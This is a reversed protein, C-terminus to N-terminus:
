RIVEKKEPRVRWEEGPRAFPYFRGDTRSEGLGLHHCEVSTDVAIGFGAARAKRCFAMDEGVRERPPLDSRDMLWEFPRDIATFVSKHIALCGAGVLDADILKGYAFQTIPTPLGSTEYYMVPTIPANRRYYLGSVIPRGHSVLREFADAPPIVDDDLFFLWTAGEFIAERVAENRGHDFPLGAIPPMVKTGAPLRLERFAFAWRTPVIERTLVALVAESM